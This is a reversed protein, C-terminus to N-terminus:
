YLWRIEIVSLIYLHLFTKLALIKYYSYLVSWHNWPNHHYYISIIFCRSFINSVVFYRLFLKSHVANSTRLYWVPNRPSNRITQRTTKGRALQFISTPLPKKLNKKLCSEHLSSDFKEKKKKSSFHNNPNLKKDHGDTVM